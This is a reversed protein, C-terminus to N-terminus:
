SRAEGAVGVGVGHGVREGVGDEAGGAAAVDALEKGVASGWHFSASEIPGAACRAALQHAAAAERGHLRVQGDDGLLGLEPGVAGAM